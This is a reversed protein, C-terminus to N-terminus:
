WRNSRRGGSFSRKNSRRVTLTWPVIIKIVAKIPTYAFARRLEATDTAALYLAMEGQEWSKFPVNSAATHHFAGFSPCPPSPFFFFFFSCYCISM